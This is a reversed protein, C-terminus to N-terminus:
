STVVEGGYSEVLATAVTRADADREDVPVPPMLDDWIPMVTGFMQRIGEPRAFFWTHMHEGGDGWRAIHGRAINPLAEIARVVHVLLLGLEAAREDPLGPFDVHARSVLLLRLPAGSPRTTVLQWHEDRWVVGSTSECANCGVGGTGSRTAEPLVPAHLPVVRLGDTEFPFIDWDTIQSRPLRGDEDAAALARAYFEHPDAPM